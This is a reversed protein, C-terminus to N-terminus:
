IGLGTVWIASAGKTRGHYYYVSWRDGGEHLLWPYGLDTNSNDPGAPPFELVVRDRKWELRDAKGRWLWIRSNQETGRARETTLVLLEGPREPDEVACPAALRAM